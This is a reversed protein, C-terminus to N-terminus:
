LNREPAIFESVFKKGSVRIYKVNPSYNKILMRIQSDSLKPCDVEKFIKADGQREGFNRLPHYKLFGYEGIMLVAVVYGDDFNIGFQMNVPM